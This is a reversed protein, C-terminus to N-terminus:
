AARGFFRWAMWLSILLVVFGLGQTFFRRTPEPLGLALYSVNLWMVRRPTAVCVIGLLFFVGVTGASLLFDVVSM